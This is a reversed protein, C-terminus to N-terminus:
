PQKSGQQPTAPAPRDGRYIHISDTGGVFQEREEKSIGLAEAVKDLTDANVSVRRVIQGSTTYIICAGM